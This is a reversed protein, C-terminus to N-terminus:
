WDRKKVNDKWLEVLNDPANYRLYTDSGLGGIYVKFSGDSEYGGSTMRIAQALLNISREADAITTIPFSDQLNYGRGQGM